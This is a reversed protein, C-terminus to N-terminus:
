SLLGAREARRVAELRTHASLKKLIRQVHNNVTAPSIFLQESIQSTSNGKSLLRLIELERQSLDALGTVTNKASTIETINVLPLTTEKIVFDRLLHEFRKQMDSSKAIHLTYGEATGGKKPGLVTMSCWKEGSATDVKIDYAKLQEHNAARAKVACNLSCHHGCEDVGHLLESCFQGLADKEQIGFLEVAANNWAAVQGIPDLVYAAEATANVMEIIDERKM